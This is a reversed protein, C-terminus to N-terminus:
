AGFNDRVHELLASTNVAVTARPPRIRERDIWEQLGARRLADEVAKQTLSSLPLGRERAQRYLEDPLYVSVKPM